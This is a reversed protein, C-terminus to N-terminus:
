SMGALSAVLRPAGQQMTGTDGSQVAGYGTIPARACTAMTDTDTMPRGASAGPVM